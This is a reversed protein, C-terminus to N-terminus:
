DEFSGVAIAWDSTRPAEWVTEEPAFMGLEIEEYPRRTDIAVTSLASDSRSLDMRVTATEEAYFVFRDFGAGRLAVSVPTPDSGSLVEAGPERGSLADARVLDASFRGEDFWFASYAAIEDKVDVTFEVGRLEGRAGNDYPESGRENESHPLLNGWINAVGGAMTSHWLGRVTMEPTYDKAQFQDSERIRFRDEQFAAKEFAEYTRVYHRYPVRYDYHGAYDGSWYVSSLPRRVISNERPYSEFTDARAGVPHVWGGLREELYSRYWSLEEADAWLHLDFGYGISWGPIPGLRGAIQRLVRRAPTSRPGGLNRPGSEGDYADSGYLWFHVMAGEEYAELVFAELVDFTGPAPELYLSDTDSAGPEFWKGGGGEFHLGTFGTEVIFEDIARRIASSDVRGAQLFASPRDMMVLQPVFSEETQSWTWSRGNTVVFGPNPEDPEVVEVTGRWAGLDEPGETEITWTGTRTGTFRFKWTPEGEVDGAYFMQSRRSTGSAEHTFVAAAEVDYPDAALEAERLSWEAYPEGLEVEKEPLLRGHCSVLAGCTLVLIGLIFRELGIM